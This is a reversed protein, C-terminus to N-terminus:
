SVMSRTSTNGPEAAPMRTIVTGVREYGRIRSFEGAGIDDDVSQRVEGFRHNVRGSRPLGAVATESREFSWARQM